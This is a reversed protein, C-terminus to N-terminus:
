FTPYNLGKKKGKDFQAQQKKPSTNTETKERKKTSFQRKEM